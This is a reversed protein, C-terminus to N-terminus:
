YSFLLKRWPKKTRSRSIFNLNVDSIFNQNVEYKLNVDSNFVKSNKKRKKKWFNYITLTEHSKWEWIWFSASTRFHETFFTNKLIESFECSFVQALTEKKTFNCAQHRSKDLIKAPKTYFSNSCINMFEFFVRRLKMWIHRTHRTLM